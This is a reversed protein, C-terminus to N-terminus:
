AGGNRPKFRKKMHSRTAAILAFLQDKYLQLQITLLLIFVDLVAADLLFGFAAVDPNLVMLLVIVVAIASLAKQGKTFPQARWAPIVALIALLFRM